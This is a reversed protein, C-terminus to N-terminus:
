RLRFRRRHVDVGAYEATVVDKPSPRKIKFHYGDDSQLANPWPCTNRPWPLQVVCNDVRLARLPELLPVEPLAYGRDFVKLQLNRLNNATALKQCIAEWRQEEEKIREAPWPRWEPYNPFMYVPVRARWHLNLKRLTLLTNPNISHLFRHAPELDSGDIIFLTKSYIANHL